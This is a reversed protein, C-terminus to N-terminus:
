QYHCADKQIRVTRYTIEIMVCTVTGVTVGICIKSSRLEINLAIMDIRGDM